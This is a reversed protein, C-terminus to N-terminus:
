RIFLDGVQAQMVGHRAFVLGVGGVRMEDHHCFEPVACTVSLM